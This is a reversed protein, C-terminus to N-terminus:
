VIKCSFLLEHFGESLTSTLLKSSAKIAIKAVSATRAHAHIAATLYFLVHEGMRVHRLDVFLGM